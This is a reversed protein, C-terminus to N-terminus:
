HAGARRALERVLDNRLGEMAGESRRSSALRGWFEEPVGPLARKKSGSAVIQNSGCERCSFLVKLPGDLTLSIVRYSHAHAM